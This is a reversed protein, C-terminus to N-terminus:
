WLGAVSRLGSRRNTPCGLLSECLLLLSVRGSPGNRYLFVIAGILLTAGPLGLAGLQEGFIM